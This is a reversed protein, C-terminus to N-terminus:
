QANPNQPQPTARERRSKADAEALDQAKRLTAIERGICGSREKGYVWLEFGRISHVIRYPAAMACEGRTIWNM